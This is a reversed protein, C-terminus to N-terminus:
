RSLRPTTPRSCRPPALPQANPRLRSMSSTRNRSPASPILTPSPTRNSRSCPRPHPRSSPLPSRETSPNRHPNVNLSPPTPTLAHTLFFTPSPSPRAINLSLDGAQFMAEFRQRSGDEQLPLHLLPAPPNLPPAYPNCACLPAFPAAPQLPTCLSALPPASPHLPTCLPASLHLPTCLSASPHLPTFHRRGFISPCTLSSSCM